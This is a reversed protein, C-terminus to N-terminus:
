TAWRYGSAKQSPKKGESRVAQEIENIAQTSRESEYSKMYFRFFLTSYIADSCINSLLSQARRFERVQPAGQLEPV